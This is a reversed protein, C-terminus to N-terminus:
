APAQAARQRERARYLEEMAARVAQGELAPEAAVLEEVAARSRRTVPWPEERSIRLALRAAVAAAERLDTIRVKDVTDYATHDFGRGTNVGNPDSMMATPVGEQFFPFHDSFASTRQGAPLDAAMERRCREWFPDLERWRNVVLGKPGPGGAADLNLMFRISDLEEAHQTVYRRAGILGTEEASFQVFRIGCGVHEAAHRGLVRAAELLAVAGSAPDHAGQAIDHGDYHCGVLVWEDPRTRGPLEAVVNLATVPHCRDTTEIRLTLQGHRRQLRRLMEGSEYSIGIGPILAERDNAISGTEPGYGPYQNVYLFASAGALASRQYKESRHVTRHLGRPPTSGVMAVGGQLRDAV